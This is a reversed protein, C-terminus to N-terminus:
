DGLHLRAVAMPHVPINHGLYYPASSNPGAQELQIKLTTRKSPGIQILKTHTLPNRYIWHKYGPATVEITIPRKPLAYQFYGNQELSESM